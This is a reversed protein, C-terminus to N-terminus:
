KTTNEQVLVYLYERSGNNSKGSRVALDVTEQSELLEILDDSCAMVTGSNTAYFRGDTTSFYVVEGKVVIADVTITSNVVAKLGISSNRMNISEAYSLKRM